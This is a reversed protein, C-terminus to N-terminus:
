KYAKWAVDEVRSLAAEQPAFLPDKFSQAFREHFQIRSLSAPAQGKRIKTM